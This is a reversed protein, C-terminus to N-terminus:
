PTPDEDPEISVRGDALPTIRCPYHLGLTRGISADGEGMLREVEPGDDDQCDPEAARQREYAAADATGAATCEYTQGDHVARDGVATSQAAFWCDSCVDPGDDDSGDSWPVTRKCNACTFLKHEDCGDSTFCAECAAPTPQGSADPGSGRYPLTGGAEVIGDALAAVSKAHGHDVPCSQAALWEEYQGAVPRTPDWPWADRDRRDREFHTEIESALWGSQRGANTEVSGSTSNPHDVYGTSECPMMAGGTALEAARMEVRVADSDDNSPGLSFQANCSACKAGAIDGYCGEYGFGPTWEARYFGNRLIGDSFTYLARLHNCQKTARKPAQTRKPTRKSGTM